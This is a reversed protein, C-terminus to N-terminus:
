ACRARRREERIEVGGGALSDARAALAAVRRQLRQLEQIVHLIEFSRANKRLADQGFAAAVGSPRTAYSKGDPAQGNAPAARLPARAPLARSKEPSIDRPGRLRWLRGRWRRIWVVRLGRDRGFEGGPRLDSIEHQVEVFVDGEVSAMCGSMSFSILRVRRCNKPCDAQAEAPERERLQEPLLGEARRCRRPAPRDAHM